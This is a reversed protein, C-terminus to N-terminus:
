TAQLKPRVGKNQWEGHTDDMSDCLGMSQEQKKSLLASNPLMSTAPLDLGGAHAVLALSLHAGQSGCLSMDYPVQTLM